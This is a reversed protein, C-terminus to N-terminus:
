EWAHRWYVTLSAGASFAAALLRVDNSGPLLRWWKSAPFQVAGFRDATGGLKVTKRGVDIDLFEGAALNYILDLSLGTSNNLIQPNTIPGMIRFRPIAEDDGQNEVFQQGALPLETGYPSTYPSTYGVIGGAGGPDIVISAEASSRILNDASVMPLQVTTPHRGATNPKASRRLRLEVEIGLDSPTWRLISDARRARAARKLKRELISKAGARQTPDLVVPIVVPRAGDYGPGPIAGDQEVLEDLSGRFEAGDLGSIGADPDIYGVWDPDAKAADSNGFVARTGDPGILVYPLSLEV